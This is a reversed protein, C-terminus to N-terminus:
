TVRVEIDHVKGDLELPAFGILYQRHLEDAVRAFAVGLDERFRIEPTAVAPRTRSAGSVQPRSPGGDADGSPM